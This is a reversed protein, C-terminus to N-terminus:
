SIVDVVQIGHFTDGSDANLGAHTALASAVNAISGSLDDCLDKLGKLTETTRGSGAIEALAAEVNESTFRGATDAIPLDLASVQGAGTGWDIHFDKVSDDSATGSAALIAAYKEYLAKLAAEITDTGFYGDADKIPYDEAAITGQRGPDNIIVIDTGEITTRNAGRHIEALVRKNLYLPAVPSASPAGEQIRILGEDDVYVLDKRGQAATDSIVAATPYDGGNSVFRGKSTNVVGSAVHVKRPNTECTSVAYENYVSSQYPLFVETRKTYDFRNTTRIIYNGATVEEFQVRGVIIDTEWIKEPDDEAPDDSYGVALMDMYNAEVDAWGFRLVIYPRSTTCYNSGTFSAISIEQTSRTEARVSINEDTLENSQILCVLPQIGVQTDNVRVLKGGMYIGYPLLDSYGRNFLKAKAPSRYDFTLVQDGKNITNTSM